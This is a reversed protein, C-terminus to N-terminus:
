IDGVGGEGAGTSGRAFLSAEPDGIATFRRGGTGAVSQCCVSILSSNRGGGAGFAGMPSDTDSSSTWVTIESVDADGGISAIGVLGNAM